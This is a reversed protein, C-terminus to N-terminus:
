DKDFTKVGSDEARARNGTVLGRVAAEIRAESPIVEDELEAAYPMPTRAGGLRRVPVDLERWCAETISSAIEAGFGYLVPAEHCVLVRRTHRVSTVITDLDLPYLTRPDVIEIDIGDAALRDAVAISRHLMLQTAVITVDRGKRAVRGVGLPVPTDDVLGRVNYLNKHELFITPNPSLISSRLLGRADHPTSPLVVELGPIHAFLTELSQTHQAAKGAGWGTNSRIVLPVDFQGGFKYRIKAAQNVIPDFGLLSFDSYMIEVVPRCGCLAAGVGAALIGEESIPTDRVRGPGFEALLGRTVGHIGGGAGWRTLEEGMIFVRADEAMASRLGDNLARWLTMESM